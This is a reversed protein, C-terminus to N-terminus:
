CSAKLRSKKQERLEGSTEKGFAEAIDRCNAMSGNSAIEKLDEGSSAGM